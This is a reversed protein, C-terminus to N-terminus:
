DASPLSIEHGDPGVLHPEFKLDPFTKSIIEGAAKIEREHLSIRQNDDADAYGDIMLKKWGCPIHDYLALTDAGFFDMLAGIYKLNVESTENHTLSVSPGPIRFESAPANPSLDGHQRALENFAPIFRGDSCTMLIKKPKYNIDVKPERM